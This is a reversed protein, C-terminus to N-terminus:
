GRSCRQRCGCVNRGVGYDRGVHELSRVQGSGLDLCVAALAQVGELGGDVGGAQETCACLGTVETAGVCDQAERRHGVAVRRDGGPAEQQWGGHAPLGDLRADRERDGRPSLFGEKDTAEIHARHDVGVTEAAQLPCLRGEILCQPAYLGGQVELVMITGCAGFGDANCVRHAGALDAQSPSLAVREAHRGYHGRDILGDLRDETSDLVQGGEFAHCTSVDQRSSRRIACQEKMNRTWTVLQVFIYPSRAVLVVWGPVRDRTM